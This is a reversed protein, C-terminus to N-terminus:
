QALRRKSRLKWSIGAAAVAVGLSIWRAGGATFFAGYTLSLLAILASTFSLAAALGLMEMPSGKESPPVVRREEETMLSTVYPSFIRWFTLGTVLTVGLLVLGTRSRGLYLDSIGVIYCM